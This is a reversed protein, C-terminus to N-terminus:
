CLKELEEETLPRFAGKELTEDLMLSGMSLRKLFIVKKGVAQFMRKVQHFKGEYIEVEIESIDDSVLVKLNAPFATFDDDIKLGEALGMLYAARNTIESM